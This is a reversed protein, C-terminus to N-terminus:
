DTIAANAQLFCNGFEVTANELTGHFSHQLGYNVRFARRALQAIYIHHEPCSLIIEGKMTVVNKEGIWDIFEYTTTLDKATM